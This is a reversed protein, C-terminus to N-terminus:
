KSNYCVERIFIANNKTLNTIKYPFQIFNESQLLAFRSGISAVSLVAANQGDFGGLNQVVTRKGM